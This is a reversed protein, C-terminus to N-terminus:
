VYRSWSITALIFYHFMVASIRCQAIFQNLLFTTQMVGLCVILNITNFGNITNRLTKLRVFTVLVLTLLTISIIMLSTSLISEILANLSLQETPPTKEPPLCVFVSQNDTLEYKDFFHGTKSLLRKGDIFKYETQNLLIRPCSDAILTQECVVVNTSVDLKVQGQDDTHEVCLMSGMYEGPYYLRGTKNVYITTLNDKNLITFDSNWYWIPMDVENLCFDNVEVLDFHYNSLFFSKSLLTVKYKYRSYTLNLLIKDNKELKSDMILFNINMNKDTMNLPVIKEKETSIALTANIIRNMDITFHKCFQEIFQQIIEVQNTIILQESFTEQSYFGLTVNVMNSKTELYKIFPKTQNESSSKTSNVCKFDKIEFNNKCYLQRCQKNFPDWMYQADCKDNHLQSSYMNRSQGDRGLNILIAFSSPMTNYYRSNHLSFTRDANAIHLGPLDIQQEFQSLVGSASAPVLFCKLLVSFLVLLLLMYGTLM